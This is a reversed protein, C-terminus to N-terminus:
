PPTEETQNRNLSQELVGEKTVNAEKSKEEEDDSRKSLYVKKMVNTECKGENSEDFIVHTSEEITKTCKNYIRYAKSHISYRMVIREYSKADFKGLKNKGNNHITCKCGFPLFYSIDVKKGKFLKYSTIKLILCILCCNLV